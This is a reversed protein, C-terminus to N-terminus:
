RDRTFSKMRELEIALYARARARINVEARYHEELSRDNASHADEQLFYLENIERELRSHRLYLAEQIFLDTDPERLSSRRAQERRISQLETALSKSLNQQFEELSGTRQLEQAVSMLELSLADLIFDLPDRDDQYLSDEVIRFIAQYDSRTFDEISLPALVGALIPDQRQLERLKRRALFLRDPQEILLRLCFAERQVSQGPPGSVELSREQRGVLRRQERLSPQVRSEGSLKRQAWQILTREDIRV